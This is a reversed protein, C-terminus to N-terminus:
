HWQEYAGKSLSKGRILNSNVNSGRDWAQRVYHYSRIESRAPLKEGVNENIASIKVATISISALIGFIILGIKSFITGIIAAIAGVKISSASVTAATAETGTMYGFLGLAGLIMGKSFGNKSLKKKLAAKARFFLVQAALENCDMIEAIKSYPLNDYCRLILINRHSLKLKSMSDIIAESLEKNILNKLGGDNKSARELLKDKDFSSMPQFKKEKQKDRFYHQVKGLATRYLWARFREPQEIRKISKVAELLTEQKIDEALNHNLTLRYIYTYLGGEAQTLLCDMSQRCGNQAKKVLEGIVINNNLEM